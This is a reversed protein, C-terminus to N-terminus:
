YPNNSTDLTDPNTYADQSQGVTQDSTAGDAQGVQLGATADTWSNGVNQAATIVSAANSNSGDDAPTSSAIPATGSTLRLPLTSIWILAILVTVTGASLVAVRTRVAHPQNKLHTIVRKM